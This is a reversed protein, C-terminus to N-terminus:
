YKDIIKIAFEKNDSKRFAKRVVAFSGRINYILNIM